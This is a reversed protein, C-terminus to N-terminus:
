VRDKAPNNKVFEFEQLLKWKDGNEQEILSIKGFELQAPLKYNKIKEFIQNTCTSNRPHMLTIHPIQQKELAAQGLVLKRLQQFAMNNGASSIYVGKKNAFRKVAGFNILISEELAIAQIRAITGEIPEIEDERCLTVHAPILNYQIPNFACRIKEITTNQENIFLTLQRRITGM